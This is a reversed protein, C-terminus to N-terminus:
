LFLLHVLVVFAVSFGANTSILPYHLLWCVQPALCLMITAFHHPIIAKNNILVLPSLISSLIYKWYFFLPPSSTLKHFKRWGNTLNMAVVFAVRSHMLASYARKYQLLLFDSVFHNRLTQDWHNKHMIHSFCVHKETIKLLRLLRHKHWTSM